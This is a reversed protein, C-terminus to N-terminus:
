EEDQDDLYDTGFKEKPQNWISNFFCTVYQLFLEHYIASLM